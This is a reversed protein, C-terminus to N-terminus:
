KRIKRRESYFKKETPKCESPEILLDEFNEILKYNNDRYYSNIFM